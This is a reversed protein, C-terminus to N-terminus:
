TCCMLSYIIYTSLYIIVHIFFRYILLYNSKQIFLIGYCHLEHHHHHHHHHQQPHHHHNLQQYKTQSINHLPLLSILINLIGRLYQQDNPITVYM